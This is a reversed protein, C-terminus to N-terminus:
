LEPGAESEPEHRLDRHSTLVVPVPGADTDIHFETAAQWAKPDLPFCCPDAGAGFPPGAELFLLRGDALRMFDATFSKSDSPWVELSGGPYSIQDPLHAALRCAAAVSQALDARVREGDPLDRQPYYSSIGVPRGDFVFVRYEVPYNDIADAELWPRRWVTIDEGPYEFLLEFARPDDITFGDLFRQSWEPQGKSLHMKVDLPACMDWRLMTGPQKAKEIEGFFRKLVEIQDETPEDWHLLPEIEATAVPEAPVHDVGARECLDIWQGLSVLNFGPADKWANRPPNREAEELCADLHARIAAGADDPPIRDPM